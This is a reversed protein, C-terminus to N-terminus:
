ICLCNCILEIERITENKKEDTMSKMFKSIWEKDGVYHYESNSQLQMNISESKYFMDSEHSISLIDVIQIHSEYLEMLEFLAFTGIGKKRFPMNVEFRKIELKNCLKGDRKENLIDYRINDFKDDLKPDYSCYVCSIAYFIDNFCHAFCDKRHLETKIESFRRFVKHKAKEDIEWHSREELNKFNKIHQITM